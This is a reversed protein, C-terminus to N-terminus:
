IMSPRLVGGVFRQMCNDDVTGYQNTGERSNKRVETASDRANCSTYLPDPTPPRWVDHRPKSAAARANRRKLMSEKARRVRPRAAMPTQTSGAM